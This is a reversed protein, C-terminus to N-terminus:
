SAGPSKDAPPKDAKSSAHPSYVGLSEIIAIREPPAYRMKQMGQMKSEQWLITEQINVLLAGKTAEEDTNAPYAVTADRHWEGQPSRVIVRYYCLANSAIAPISNKVRPHFVYTNLVESKAGVYCASNTRDIYPSPEDNKPRIKFFAELSDNKISYWSGLFCHKDDCTEILAVDTITTGRAGSNTITVPIVVCMGGGPDGVALFNFDVTLRAPALASFWASSGAVILALGSIVLAWESTGM